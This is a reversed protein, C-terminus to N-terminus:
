TIKFALNNFTQNKDWDSQESNVRLSIDDTFEDFQYYTTM